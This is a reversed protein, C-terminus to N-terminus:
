WDRVHTNTSKSRLYWVSFIIQGCQSSFQIYLKWIARSGRRYHSYKLMRAASREWLAFVALLCGHFMAPLFEMSAEETRTFFFVFFIVCLTPQSEYTSALWRALQQPIVARTTRCAPRKSLIPNALSKPWEYGCPPACGASTRWGCHGCCM